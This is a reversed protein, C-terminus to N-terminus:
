ATLSSQLTSIAGVGAGARETSMSGIPLWRLSDDEPLDGEKQEPGGNKAGAHLGDDEVDGASEGDSSHFRRRVRQDQSKRTSTTAAASPSNEETPTSTLVEVSELYKTGNHGGIALISNAVGVIAVGGRCTNMPPLSSWTDTRPNYKEALRLPETDEFGGAVVLHGSSPFLPPTRYNEALFRGHTTASNNCLSILPM